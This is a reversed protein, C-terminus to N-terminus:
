KLLILRVRKGILCKPTTLRGSKCKHGARVIYTKELAEELTYKKRKSQQRLPKAKYIM